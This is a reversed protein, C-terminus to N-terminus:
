SSRRSGVTGLRPRPLTIPRLQGAAIILARKTEVQGAVMVAGGLCAAAPALWDLAPSLTLLIFPLVYGTGVIGVLSPPERLPRTAREFEESREWALYAVWVVLATVLAVLVAGLWAGPARGKVSETMLLLGAGSVLASTVFMVPVLATDWATVARARRVILGQSLVFALAALVALARLIASPILFEALALLTFAGGLGMERSMWSSRLRAIVRAGRLPRGAETAVAVFGALVLLPSLWAALALGPAGELWGALAAWVYFGAGLGGLVFNAVAPLGWWPQRLAPILEVNM